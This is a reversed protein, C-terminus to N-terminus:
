RRGSQLEDPVGRRRFKARRGTVKEDVILKVEQEQLELPILSVVIKQKDFPFNRLNHYSELTGYYRQIYKVQGGPGIAVVRPRSTILRGSNVFVLGPSWVDSLSVTCGQLSLLRADTWSQTVLYDGTLSQAVDNIDTLDVMRFGVSVVTPTGSSSPRVETRLAPLQCPDKNAPSETQALSDHAWIAAWLVAGLVCKVRHRIMRMIEIM